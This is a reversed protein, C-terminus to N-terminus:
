CINEGINTAERRNRPVNDREGISEWGGEGDLEERQM